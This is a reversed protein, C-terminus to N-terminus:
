CNIRRRWTAEFLMTAEAGCLDDTRIDVAFCSGDVVSGGIQCDLRLRNLWKSCSLLYFVLNLEGDLFRDSLLDWDASLILWGVLIFRLDTRFKCVVDSVLSYCSCNSGGICYIGVNTKFFAAYGCCGKWCTFFGAIFGNKLFVVSNLHFFPAVGRLAMTSRPVLM